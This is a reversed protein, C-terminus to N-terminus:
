QAQRYFVPVSTVTSYVHKLCCGRVLLVVAAVFPLRVTVLGCCEEYYNENHEFFVEDTKQIQKQGFLRGSVLCYFELGSM